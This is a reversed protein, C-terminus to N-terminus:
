PSSADGIPWGELLVARVPSAEAGALPLPLAVLTYLGEPVVDLRAGELLVIGREAAARHADLPAGFPDVSPTDLGILQVGRRALEEVLEVSLGAFDETWACPDPCSGTRFLVRSARIQRGDLIGVGMRGSAEMPAHVVECPGLFRPLALADIRSAGPLVHGPADLHSGLHLTSSISSLVVGSSDTGERRTFPEDGPFVALSRSLPPSLDYWKMVRPEPDRNM